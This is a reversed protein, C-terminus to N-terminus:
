RRPCRVSTLIHLFHVLCSFEWGMGILAVMQHVRLGIDCEYKHRFIIHCSKERSFLEWDRGSFLSKKSKLLFQVVDPFLSFLSMFVIESINLLLNEPKIRVLLLSCLNYNFIFLSFFALFIIEEGKKQPGRLLPFKEPSNIAKVRQWSQQSKKNESEWGRAATQGEKSLIQLHFSSGSSDHLLRALSIVDLNILRGTAIREGDM